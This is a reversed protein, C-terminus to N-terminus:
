DEAQRRIARLRAQGDRLTNTPTIGSVFDSTIGDDSGIEYPSDRAVSVLEVTTPASDVAASDHCAFAVGSEFPPAPYPPNANGQTRPHPVRSTGFVGCVPVASLPQPTTKPSQGSVCELPCRLASVGQTLSPAGHACWCARTLTDRHPLWSRRFGDHRIDDTAAPRVISLYERSYSLRGLARFPSRTILQHRISLRRTAGYSLWVDSVPSWASGISLLETLVSNYGFRSVPSLSM